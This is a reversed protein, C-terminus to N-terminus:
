HSMLLCDIGLYSVVSYLMFDPDAHNAIIVVQINEILLGQYHITSWKLIIFMIRISVPYTVFVISRGHCMFM